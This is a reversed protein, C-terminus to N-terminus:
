RRRRLPAVLALLALWLSSAPAPTACGCGKPAGEGALAGGGTDDAPPASDISPGTDEPEATGGSDEPQEEPCPLDEGDCDQDIGDGCVEVADPYRAGNRDDCDMCAIAGDGDADGEDLDTPDCSRDIGDCDEPAGPFSAADGDDCDTLCDAGDGDADIVPWCPTEDPKLQYDWIGRGYTGFRMTDEHSLAEVSWYNTVPAETDTIDTWASDGPDRRYAATETGAFWSGSGDPAEALSYVLTPPLGQGFPEWTIGGDTSRLVAGEGTDYDSGGVLVEDEDLSSAVIANGYFYQGSPATDESEVWNEGRDDSVFLSGWNTVAYARDPNLPSFTMASVYEYGRDSLTTKSWRKSEWTFSGTREYRYINSACLYFVAPDEPDATLPPLWAYIEGSPFDVYATRPDEEGIQVLVFGPYVSYVLQHTGDGSVLHAYDGSVIQDFDLVDGDQELGNTVQYGQDQAGAAVNYPPLISTLTGYYQGVRLGSMSLNEVTSLSDTSRYLGGDTGLYWVEGGAGDPFVDIGMLDAHLKNVPDGYYDAWYNYNQFSQGGDTTWTVEVGGWAMIDADVISASLTGWYDSVQGIYDWSVGGDDSRLLEYGDLVAWLRPAGAESGTLEAQGSHMFSPFTGITEWTDGLDDSFLIADDGAVVYLDAAGTRPTWLDGEYGGLELVTTFGRGGNESRLVYNLGRDDRFIMLVTDSGDSTKLLRRVGWGAGPLGAPVQWTAGDDDTYHVDGGDTAAIVVVGTGDDTVELLHAGGYLNDGIPTWGSGDPSGVWVGGHSSGAYIQTGDPSPRAVMMRGAQNESGGEVWRGGGAAPPREGRAMANRKALQARGNAREVARWDVGPPARHMAQIWEKRREKQRQEAGDDLWNETPPPGPIVRQATDPNSPLLYLAAQVCSAAILFRLFQM